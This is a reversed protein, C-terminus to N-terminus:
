DALWGQARAVVMRLAALRQPTGVDRWVGRYHEGSVQAEAMARRWLPVISFRGPRCGTFLAPQLVGLGSYTLRQAGEPAEVVRGAVLAFDGRPHHDPNDVLVLHALGTPPQHLRQRPYDTWVDANVVAFPEDGLQALAQYVGGGSDLAAEPEVSYRITVGFSKGDGLADRLLTGRYGCNIVIERFGGGALAELHHVILPKDGVDVLPKPIVDTLPRLRDGRGASLILAKM